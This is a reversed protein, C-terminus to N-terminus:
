YKTTYPHFTKWSHWFEQWASVRTLADTEPTLPQGLLNWAKGDSTLTDQRLAFPGQDNRRNFAQFSVNDSGLVVLVLHNGIQDHIIREKKLRNWDFAKAHQPDFAIGVVWSKDQWSATDTRTLKGRGIGLDYTDMSDYEEQFEPDRQMVLSQPHWKLWTELSTQESPIEPLVQGKLPGAVAEGTAQRWWSGTTADEFMANFHDMGVLRFSELHGNVEPSYVRGTRCVTCYTVMVPKGGLTDMVQHHYGLFQIPYAKEAGNVSVGLVLKHLPVKNSAADAMQLTRPQYFMHDAAMVMNFMYVAGGIPLLVILSKWGHAAWASRAGLLCLGLLIGRFLWRYTYLWYAWDLSNMQQSGPMPMIFYVNALEFLFLGTISLYFLIKM